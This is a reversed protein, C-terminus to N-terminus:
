VKRCIFLWRLSSNKVRGFTEGDYIEAKFGSLLDLLFEKGHAYLSHEEERKKYVEGEPTFFTLFIDCRGRSFSNNWGLYVGGDEYFFDNNGLVKKLKYPTSVDFVLVGGAPLANYINHITRALARPTLYNFGDCVCTIFSYTNSPFKTRSIDVMVWQAACRGEALNLMEPSSDMGTMKHGAAAALATFAGSGCALDLGEGQLYPAVFAFYGKHDFGILKDYVAALSEYM